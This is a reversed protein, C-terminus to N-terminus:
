KLLNTEKYDYWGTIYVAENQAVPMVYNDLHTWLDVVIIIVM